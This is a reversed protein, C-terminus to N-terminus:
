AAAEPSGTPAARREECTDLRAIAEAIERATLKALEPPMPAGEAGLQWASLLAAPDVAEALIAGIRRAVESLPEDVPLALPGPEASGAERAASPLLEFLSPGAGARLPVPLKSPGLEFVAAFYRAQAESPYRYELLFGGPASLSVVFEDGERRVSAQYASM